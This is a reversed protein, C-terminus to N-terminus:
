FKSKHPEVNKIVRLQNNYHFNSTTFTIWRQLTKQITISSNDRKGKFIFINKKLHIRVVMSPSLSIWPFFIDIEGKATSFVNPIDM